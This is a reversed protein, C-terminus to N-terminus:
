RLCAALPLAVAQLVDGDKRDQVFAVLEFRRPGDGPLAVQHRTVGLKMPGLWQRVVHDNRLTEGGNEGRDVATYHGHQKLAVFLAADPVEIGAALSTTLEVMLTGNQGGKAALEISARAPQLNQQSVADAFARKNRWQLWEKSALFVGPTYV